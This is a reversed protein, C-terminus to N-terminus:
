APQRVVQGAAQRRVALLRGVVLAAVGALGAACLGLGAVIHSRASRSCWSDRSTSVRGPPIARNGCRADRSSCVPPASRCTSSFSGDGASGPRWRGASWRASPSRRGSRPATPPLPGAALAGASLVTAALALTYADVIWKLGGLTTRLDRAIPHLATNVVAIDLMLMATAACVVALTWRRSNM